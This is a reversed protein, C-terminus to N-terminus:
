RFTDNKCHYEIEKSYSAVVAEFLLMRKTKTLKYKPLYSPLFKYEIRDIGTNCREKENPIKSKM